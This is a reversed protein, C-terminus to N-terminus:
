LFRQCPKGEIRIAESKALELFHRMRQKLDALPVEDDAVRVNMGAAIRYSEAM